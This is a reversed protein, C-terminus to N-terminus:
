SPTEMGRLLEIAIGPWLRALRNELTADIEMSGDAARVIVGAAVEEGAELKVGSRGALAPKLLPTWAKPCHVVADNGGAYALAAELDRRIGAQMAAQPVTAVLLARARTLIGQLAEARATLARASADRRAADLTGSAAASLEAQRTALDTTRRLALRARADAQLRAADATAEDRVATIRALADRELALVLERLAM